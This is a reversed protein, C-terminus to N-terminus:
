NGIEVYTNWFEQTDETLGAMHGARFSEDEQTLEGGSRLYDMIWRFRSGDDIFGSPRAPLPKKAKVPLPLNQEMKAIHEDLEEQTVPRSFEQQELARRRREDGILAAAREAAPVESYRRFDPAAAAIKRFEDAFRKRRERKEAIKRSALDNDKMSSREVPYATCLYTSGMFVHLEDLTMPNYRIDVRQGQLTLLADSVYFEGAFNIMGKNVIRGKPERALFLLDAAEKSVMRPRWGTEYCAYLCNYPTASAPKPQWVWESRVGRHPKERNYYDCAEYMALAFERATLLRGDAALQMAEKHDVDQWHIDDGLRKTHGALKLVSAMIRELRYFTGEIMKAKANKVVAKKHTGPLLCSVQIDEDDVDLLDMTVDETRLWEMGMSRTNALIATLYKSLEPKGNDTYISGFAGYCAVGLRLALGILWADYKKDVAAGYIVRTRLDQWIYGEPRYVQGTDEDLVWRDFRHQDGVLMEFPALDSYDRLIPPLLNDLARLGGKQMAELLPNWKKKFWWNASELCGITWARRAAEIACIEYLDKRDINRHEPKACLSIFFDVAEPTWKRPNDKTSKTHRLGAIGRKEYKALWRYITQWKIDHMQAVNEIWARRGRNWNKPPADVERLIALINRIRPDQLDKESIATESTWSPRASVAAGTFVDSLTPILATAPSQPCIEFREGTQPAFPKLIELARQAVSPSLAPLMEMTKAIASSDTDNNNHLLIAEQIDPPLSTLPYKKTKGGKGNGTMHPWNEKKARKVIAQKSIGMIQAIEKATYGAEAM